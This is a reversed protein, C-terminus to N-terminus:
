HSPSTLGVKYYACLGSLAESCAQADMDVNIRSQLSSLLKAADFQNNSVHLKGNWDEAASDSMAQKVMKKLSEQRDKQVNDTYYHNYTIPQFREDRCLRDLEDMAKQLNDQLKASASELIEERVQEDKVVHELASGVFRAIETYVDDLHDQALYSWRSSQAHFLRSLLIHNYNGPLEKGRSETYVQMM